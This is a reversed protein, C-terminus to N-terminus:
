RVYDDAGKRLGKVAYKEERRVTLMLIMVPCNQERLEVCVEDGTIGPLEWDLIIVHPNKELALQLGTEGDDAGIVEYQDIRFIDELHQRTGPDDEIILVRPM